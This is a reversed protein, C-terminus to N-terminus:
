NAPLEGVLMMLTDTLEDIAATLRQGKLGACWIPAQSMGAHMGHLVTDVGTVTFEGSAVGEEIVARFIQDHRRRM